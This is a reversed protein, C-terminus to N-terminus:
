KSARQVPQSAIQRLQSMRERMLRSYEAAVSKSAGSALFGAVLDEDTIRDLYRNLWGIDSIEVRGLFDKGHRGKYGWDLSGDKKLRVFDRTQARYAVWDWRNRNFFGGSKGFSAGWDTVAYRVDSAAGIMGTNS